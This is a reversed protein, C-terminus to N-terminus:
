APRTRARCCAAPEAGAPSQCHCIGTGLLHNEQDVVAHPPHHVLSRARCLGCGASPARLTGPAFPGILVALAHPGAPLAHETLFETLRGLPCLRSNKSIWTNPEKASGPITRIPAPRRKAEWTRHTREDRGRGQGSPRQVSWGLRGLPRSASSSAMSVPFRAEIRRAIGPM